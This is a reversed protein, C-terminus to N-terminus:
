RMGTDVRIDLRTEQGLSITVTAPLDKTFKKDKRLGMELRYTGPPLYVRFQGDKDTDMAAIEQGAPGYVLLKVGPAPRPPPKIGPHEVPSVPWWTVRGSLTGLGAAQTKAGENAQSTGPLSLWGALVLLSCWIL